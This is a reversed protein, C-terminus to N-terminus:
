KMEWYYTYRIIQLLKWFQFRCREEGTLCHGTHREFLAIETNGERGIRAQSKLSTENDVGWRRRFAM